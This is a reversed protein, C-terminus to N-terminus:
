ELGRRREKEKWAHMLVLVRNYNLMGESIGQSKLYADYVQYQIKPILDPFRNMAEVIASLDNKVGPPLADRAQQFGEPDYQRYVSALYRWYGLRGAYEIAPDGSHLCALYAWFNCTGEDGFGYGHSLEHAMVYPWQVPHLGPDIHGEGTFPLYLGATSFRLFVGAPYLLRGRVRGYDPYGYRTLVEKLAERLRTELNEPFAERSLAGTDSPFAAARLGSLIATEEEFAATIMKKDLPVVELGMAREVPIRYYNYGWSWFFWAVVWGALNAVGLCWLGARRWGFRERLTKKIRAKRALLWVVWGLLLYIAPFPLFSTLADYFTRAVLFFGRSFLREVLEPNRSAIWRLGISAFGILLGWYGYLRTVANTSTRNRM